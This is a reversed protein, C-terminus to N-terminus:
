NRLPNSYAACGSKRFPVGLLKLLERAEDDTRASTVITFDFGITRAVKVLEIEAFVTHGPTGCTCIGRRASPKAALGRFDRITPAAVNIFRDLFEWMRAGRLTIRAGVTDGARLKFNSTAHRAKTTVARQGTIKGLDEIVAEAAAKRDEAKGFGVNLVVKEIVPIQHVNGYAFKEKLGPVVKEKYVSKLAPQM